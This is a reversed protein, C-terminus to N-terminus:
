FWKTQNRHDIRSHNSQNWIRKKASFYPICPGFKSDQILKETVKQIVDNSMQLPFVRTTNREIQDRMEKFSLVRM